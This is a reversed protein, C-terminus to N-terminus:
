TMHSRATTPIYNGLFASKRLSASFGSNPEELRRSSQPDHHSYQKKVWTMSTIGTVPTFGATHSQNFSVVCDVHSIALLWLILDTLLQLSHYFLDLHLVFWMSYVTVAEWPMEVAM